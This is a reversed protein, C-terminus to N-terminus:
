AFHARIFALLQEPLKANSLPIDDGDGSADPGDLFYHFTRDGPFSVEAYTERDEWYLSIEGVGAIMAKPLPASIPLHGLFVYSDALSHRNAPQGGYGDWGNKLEGYSALEQMLNNLNWRSAGEYSSPQIKAATPYVAFSPPMQNLAIREMLAQMSPADLLQLSGVICPEPGVNEEPPTQVEDLGIPEVAWRTGWNGSFNVRHPLSGYPVTMGTSSM